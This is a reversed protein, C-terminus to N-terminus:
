INLYPGAGHNASARNDVRATDDTLIYNQVCAARNIVVITDAIVNMNGRTGMKTPIHADAFPRQHTNACRHHGLPLNTIPGDHAGPRHNM